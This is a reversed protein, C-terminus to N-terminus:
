QQKAAEKAAKKKAREAKCLEHSGDKVPHRCEGCIRPKAEGAASKPKKPKKENVDPAPPEEAQPADGNGNDLQQRLRKITAM